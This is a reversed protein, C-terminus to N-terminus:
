GGVESLFRRKRVRGAIFRALGLLVVLLPPWVTNNWRLAGQRQEIEQQLKEPPIRSLEAEGIVRQRRDTIRMGRLEFLDRDGALWDLMGLFFLPGTASVPGGLAQYEGTTLDDRVFDSDAIVVLQAGPKAHALFTPDADKEAPQTGPESAAVPPGSSESAKGEQGDKPKEGIPTDLPDGSPKPLSSFPSPPLKRGDFISHFAGSISVMLGHQQPPESGLARMIGSVFRAYEEQFKEPQPGLPHMSQQMVMLASFPSSRFLVKGQVGTPAPEVLDVATPWFMAPAALGRASEADVGPLFTQKYTAILSGDTVGRAKAIEAAKTAWDIDTPQFWFPYGIQAMRGYADGPFQFPVQTSASDILARDSLKAGYGALQDVFRVQSDAGDYKMQRVQMGRAQGLSVDDTDAFLVLKGGRMLFQDLAYKQRDSLDRPRFLVLTELEDPVLQGKQLDVPVFDYRDKIEDIQLLRVFGKPGEGRQHMADTEPPPSPWQIVGVRPREKITVSKFLPTLVAEYQAPQDSFGLVPVVKQKEGGYLLRFGQWLAKSSLTSGKMDQVRNAQIGLREAKKKIELDAEPDFYQVVVHGRSRQVYEDLVNRLVRRGERVTTPLEGDPSFYAEIRLRDALRGLVNQTSGTLTFMRDATLDVRARYRSALFLVLGLVVILLGVHVVLALVYGGQRAIPTSRSM